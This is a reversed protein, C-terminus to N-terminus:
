TARGANRHCMRVSLLHDWMPADKLKDFFEFGGENRTYSDCIHNTYKSKLGNMLELKRYPFIIDNCM